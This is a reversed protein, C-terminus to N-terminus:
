LPGVESLVAASEREAVECNQTPGLRDGTGEAVSHPTIRTANHVIAVVVIPEIQIIAPGRIDTGSVRRRAFKTHEVRASKLLDPRNPGLHGEPARHNCVVALHETRHSRLLVANQHDVRLLHALNADELDASHGGEGTVRVRPGSRRVSGQLVNAVRLRSAIESMDTSKGKFYVAILMPPTSLHRDQWGEAM